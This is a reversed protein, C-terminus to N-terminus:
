QFGNEVQWQYHAKLENYADLVEKPMVNYSNIRALNNDIARALNRSLRVENLQSFYFDERDRGKMPIQEDENM